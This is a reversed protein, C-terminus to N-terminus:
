PTKAGSGMISAGSRTFSASSHLSFVVWLNFVGASLKGPQQQHGARIQFCRSKFHVHSELLWDIAIAFFLPLALDQCPEVGLKPVEFAHICSTILIGITASGDLNARWAGPYVLTGV